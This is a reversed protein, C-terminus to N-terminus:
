ANSVESALLVLSSDTSQDWCPAPIELEKPYFYWCLSLRHVCANWWVSKLCSRIWTRSSHICTVPVCGAHVIGSCLIHCCTFHHFFKNEFLRDFKVYTVQECLGLILDSQGSWTLLTIVFWSSQSKLIPQPHLPPLRTHKSGKGGRRQSKLSNEEEANGLQIDPTWWKPHSKQTLSTKSDLWQPLWM